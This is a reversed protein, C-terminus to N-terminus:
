EPEGAVAPRGENLRRRLEFSFDVTRKIFKQKAKWNVNWRSVGHARAGFVVDVRAVECGYAKAQFYAYLDLSFDHPPSVWSDFFRRHFVTPQANIDILPRGLLATEFAAMGATFFEDGFPRGRRRGKVFLRAPDPSARFLAGAKLFDAPDTQMDAHTWGIVDGRAARLGSLIGFGYGQNKEVRVSRINGGTALLRALVAASDDSSGNDVLIIEVDDGGISQRCREVLLPLNEAENFCPIVLSFMLASGSM